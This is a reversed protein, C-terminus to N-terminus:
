FCNSLDIAYLYDNRSGVFLHRNYMVPTSFVEGDIKAQKVLAGNECNMVHFVGDSSFIGVHRNPDAKMLLPNSRISASCKRKWCERLGNEASIEFCYVFHNQSGFAFNICKEDIPNAFLACSSFINGDIQHTWIPVGDCNLNYIRGNVTTLLIQLKKQYNEFVTPTSFIPTTSDFSWQIKSHLDVCAINGDLSCALITKEDFKVPNAYISKTGVRQFWVIKGSSSNLCWLNSSENYNGFIVMSDILLARCKIMGGSNFKWKIAGTQFDFCYLYGDYCGVIGCDNMQVVQSEIRDPLELQSVIEGNIASVNYLWKSHSGVSIVVIGDNLFCVTPTADICKSMDIKWRPVIKAINQEVDNEEHRENIPHNIALYSLIERISTQENLLMALLQSISQSTIREFEDVIQIAQLSSGGLHIFSSDCEEKPRKQTNLNTSDQFEIKTGLSQNILNQVITHITESGEKLCDKFEINLLDNKCIKGHSTLPFTPVCRVKVYVGTKQVSKVIQREVDHRIGDTKVFLIISNRKEDHICITDDVEQVMKALTEIESLNVKRGYFKIVSNTRSTFYLQSDSGREVIDGTHLIFEFEDDNVQDDTLQPQFCKRIKSKLCLEGDDSVEFQTYEDTPCGIPIKQDNLIDNRTIEYISAWCSMETLGYLNFIRTFQNSEWNMWKRITTTVPLPEGGFALVRLQSHPSFIRSTIQTLTWRMFLSPTLQMITVESQKGSPFLVNLLKDANCRITNSTVVLSAGNCLALCIDVMFPDFTPPSAVFIVDRETM